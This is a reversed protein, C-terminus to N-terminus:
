PAASSWGAPLTPGYAGGVYVNNNLYWVATQHTSANYLVYDPKGDNNFNGTAVLEWGAPLTPGYAGGIFTVGSLYWIATQRTSANFLAYDPHGDRNFDAADIVRWGVPLTPAYAGGIYVNNNLYWVATQRTGANYLLYDPHGDHNFDTPPNGGPVPTPTANPTPTATATPTPSSAPTPTPTPTPIPSDAFIAAELAAKGTAYKIAGHGMGPVVEYQVPQGVAILADRYKAAHEPGSSTDIAGEIMHIVTPPYLLTPGCTENSNANWIAAYSADHLVCPGTGDPYGYSQDILTAKAGYDYIGGTVCGDFIDAMVPGSDPILLDVINPSYLYLMSYAVQSSGGSSGTLIFRSGPTWLNDHVWKAVTAPRCSLLKQGTQVGPQAFTWGNASWKVQVVDYGAALLNNFYTPSFITPNPSGDWWLAGDDGSYHVVMGAKIPATSLKVALFGSFNETSPCSVSFNSCTWGTISTSCDTTEVSGLTFTGLPLPTEIKRPPAPPNDYKELAENRPAKRTPALQASATGLAILLGLCVPLALSVTSRRM